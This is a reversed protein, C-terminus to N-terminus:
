GQTGQKAKQAEERLKISERYQEAPALEVFEVSRDYNEKVVKKIEDLSVRFFERRQNVFNLKRDAFANHLAAELRPADDSFIMAHARERLEQFNTQYNITATNATGIVSGYATGINYINSQRQETEKRKKEVETMYFAKIEEQQKQFFSAQTETVYLRENAPTIIVDDIKIDTKPRFGVYQRNTATERNPLGPVTAIIEGDREIQMDLGQMELFSEFIM